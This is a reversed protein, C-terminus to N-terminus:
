LNGRIYEPDDWDLAVLSNTRASAGFAATPELGVNSALGFQGVGSDQKRARAALRRRSGLPVVLGEPSGFGRKATGLITQKPSGPLDRGAVLRNAASANPGRCTHVLLSHSCSRLMRGKHAHSNGLAYTHMPSSRTYLAVPPEYPCQTARAAHRRSPRPRALTRRPPETKPPFLLSVGSRLRQPGSSAYGVTGHHTEM